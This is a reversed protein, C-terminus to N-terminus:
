AYRIPELAAQKPINSALTNDVIMLELAKKTSRKWQGVVLPTKSVNPVPGTRFNVPGVTTALNTERIADRIAEPSRDTSRRLVDLAVEFLAQKFGLTVIWPRGTAGQYADALERSSQSTMSSKFPHGPSWMLEVTLGEARDGFAAVAAPFETAKAVTVIKPRFGQQGTQNWFNAFDPPPLVGTVIEVQQKKFESIFSSFDNIPSQFRGRDVVKFGRTALTSPFGIRGDGWANGDEDNPWLAGVAKSTPMQGWLGAFAGIVDELGWFFHYTWEFGKKPDGKRGFFYPQWPADNTICPVGNLECQDAVPNCTGPTASALVLDVQDRLILEAAASGAKNSSSQSDKYFIEVAYKRGGISIGGSVAKRVQELTFRDPESFAALPGTQPSVYGIRITNASRARVPSSNLASALTGASAVKLLTRRSIEQNM